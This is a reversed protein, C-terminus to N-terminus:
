REGEGREEDQLVGAEILESLEAPGLGLWESLVEANHEGRHPAPGRLGSLANSFAYPAEVVRRVGGARDSVEAWAPRDSFSPADMVEHMERVDGWPLEAEALRRALTERDPLEAIYRRVERERNALKQEFSSGPDARLEWVNKAQHWIGKWQSSVLIRGGPADFIQGGLREPPLADDLLHHSYDDTAFLSRLMSIDIHQGRQTRERMHIASLMAVTGHLAAYSDAISFIPDSPPEDNMEAHRGIYGAEAHIVPAYAQRGSEPGRQGFGTVSLMILRPNCAALSEYGLGLREMVGPRFNEVLIDAQEVLRRVIQPGRESKLDICINRKGANQQTYFGSLGGIKRGWLRTIDGEPPELKVVDAGLDSLLRAGYPGAMVRAMDLVRLDSLPHDPTPMSPPAERATRSERRRWGHLWGLLPAGVMMSLITGPEPLPTPDCPDGLGDGDSDTQTENPIGPCNDSGDLHIDEDRNIGIRTGSGLPVATFVVEQGGASAQALLESTSVNPAGSVDIQFQGGGLHVAGRPQGAVLGKAVLDTNGLDAQAIMLNVRDILAADAYNTSDASVQQGVIPKHGTDIAMQFNEIDQKQSGSFQFAPISLFDFMSYDSGDHLFGFGSVQNGSLGFAGVKDYANRLHPIKMGQSGVDVINSDLTFGNTGTPLAHCPNCAIFGGGTPANIFANQGAQESSTGIDTLDKIPNPPYSLTLVFDSFADFDAPAPATPRGLLAVFAERFGEFNAADDFEDSVNTKDGRWHLPGQGTLGRLSQTTMPGKLPHFDTLGGGGFGLIQLISTNPNPLVSGFPDGLDWALKDMDGFLHCTGCAADGHGSSFEADYLFRRGEIVAQPEPTHMDVTTLISRSGAAAPSSVVTIRNDFRSMVYLRDRTEDLALGSPGGSVDIRDTGIIGAEVDDPNLVAVKSSGFAAVYLTSGTTDFLLELPLAISQDRESQPGNAVSYDIHPNLHIPQPPNTPGDIVTIRTESVHGQLGQTTGVLNEFRVHNRMETNTVYLKGNGPRVALNFLHTGVGSVHSTGAILGPPDQTADIFFVDRDPLDFPVDSSWNRGLEDVWQSGDYQVILSTAPAGPTSGPPFPPLGLGSEVDGEAIVTTRNGSRFGAAYVTTGDASAALGRPTDTFLEIVNIPTGGIGAGLNAPDFVWVLARPLGPTSLDASPVTDHQGRRATTIFAKGSAFVIDRPEDGILLTKRVRSQAPDAGDVAVISVSDSLHNVVWAELAGGGTERLAVAVPRLGVPVEAHLMLGDQTVDFIALQNDPTNVAFLRAGDPSLALPRVHGAEFTVYAGASGSALTLAILAAFLYTARPLSAGRDERAPKRPPPM